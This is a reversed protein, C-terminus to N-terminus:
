GFLGSSGGRARRVSLAVKADVLEWTTCSWVGMMGLRAQARGVERKSLSLGLVKLLLLLLLIRSPLLLFPLLEMKGNGTDGRVRTVRESTTAEKLISCITLSYTDVGKKVAFGVCLAEDLLPGNERRRETQMGPM